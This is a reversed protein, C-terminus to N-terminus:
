LPSISPLPPSPVARATRWNASCRFRVKGVSEVAAGRSRRDNASAIWLITPACVVRAGITATAGLGGHTWAEDMLDFSLASILVGAGFAMVAAIYRPTIRTFWGLGAGLLLASGSVLGWLGAELAGSM